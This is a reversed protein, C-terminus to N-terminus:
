MVLVFSSWSHLEKIHSFLNILMIQTQRINFTILNKSQM